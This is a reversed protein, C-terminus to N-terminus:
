LYIRCASINKYVMIIVSGCQLLTKKYLGQYHNIIHGFRQYLRLSKGILNRYESDWERNLPFFIM